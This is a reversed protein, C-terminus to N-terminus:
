VTDEILLYGRFSKAPVGNKPEQYLHIYLFREESDFGTVIELVEYYFDSKVVEIAEATQSPKVYVQKGVYIPPAPISKERKPWKRKSDFEQKKLLFELLLDLCYNFNEINAENAVYNSEYRSHWHDHDTQVVEPTLRRFNEVHVTSLGLEICDFKLQEYDIQVYDTPKFVNENIWKTNRKQYPAKSGTLLYLGWRAAPSMIEDNVNKWHYISYDQEYALYFTKRLEILADIFLEKKSLEIANVVTKKIHGEKLLDTMFIEPLSKGFVHKLITDVFLDATNFYNVVSEPESLQGYHKAIVRQKNLAKITGLKITPVGQKKLEGILEDFSKSELNRQEDVNLEDLAALIVLEVFDQLLIIGATCKHKNGSNILDRTEYYIAKSVLLTNLTSSKM